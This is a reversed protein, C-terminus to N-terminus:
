KLEDGIAMLALTIQENMKDALEVAMKKFYEENTNGVIDSIVKVVSFPIQHSKCFKAVAYSEMDTAYATGFKYPDDKLFKDQSVFPVHKWGLDFITSGEFIIHEADSEFEGADFDGERFHTANVTTGIPLEKADLSGAYGALVVWELTGFKHLSEYLCGLTRLKGMGPSQIVVKGNLKEPMIFQLINFEYQTPLILLIM